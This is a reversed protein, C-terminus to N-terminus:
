LCMVNIEKENLRQLLEILRIINNGWKYILFNLCLTTVQHYATSICHSQPLRIDEGSDPDNVVLIGYLNHLPGVYLLPNAIILETRHM